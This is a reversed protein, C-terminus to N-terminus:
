TYALRPGGGGVNKSSLRQLSERHQIFTHQVPAQKALASKNQLSLIRLDMRPRPVEITRAQVVCVNGVIESPSISRQMAKPVTCTVVVSRNDQM